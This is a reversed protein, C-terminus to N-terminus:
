VVVVYVTSVCQVMGGRMVIVDLRRSHMPVVWWAMWVGMSTVRVMDAVISWGWLDVCKATRVSVRGMQEMLCMCQIRWGGTMPFLPFWIAVSVCASKERGDVYLEGRVICVLLLKTGANM